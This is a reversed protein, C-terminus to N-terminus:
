GMFFKIFQKREAEVMKVKKKPIRYILSARLRKLRIQGCKTFSLAKSNKQTWAIIKKERLLQANKLFNKLAVIELAM